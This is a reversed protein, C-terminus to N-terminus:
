GSPQEGPPPTADPARRNVVRRLAPSARFSVVKRAPILIPAGTRLHRGMRARKQRVRFRGFGVIQVSEGRHLAAMIGAIIANVVRTSHRRSLGTTHAIIRSLQDKRM